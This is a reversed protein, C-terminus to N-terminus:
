YWWDKYSSWILLAIMLLGMIAVMALVIMGGSDLM